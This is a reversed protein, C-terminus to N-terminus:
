KKYIGMRFAIGGDTHTPPASSRYIVPCDLGSNGNSCGRLM